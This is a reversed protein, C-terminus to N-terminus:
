LSVIVTPARYFSEHETVTTVANDQHMSKPKPAARRPRVHRGGMVGPADPRDPILALQFDGAAAVVIAGSPGVDRAGDVAVIATGPQVPPEPAAAVVIQSSSSELASASGQHPPDSAPVLPLEPPPVETSGLDSVDKKDPTRFVLRGQTSM